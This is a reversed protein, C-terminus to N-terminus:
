LVRFKGAGKTRRIHPTSERERERKGSTSNMALGEREEENIFEVNEGLGIAARGTNNVFPKQIERSGKKKMDSWWDPYGVLKFCESKIDQVVVTLANFTAKTM